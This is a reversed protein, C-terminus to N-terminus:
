FGHALLKNFFEAFVAKVDPARFYDPGLNALVQPFLSQQCDAKGADAHEDIYPEPKLEPKAQPCDHAQNM